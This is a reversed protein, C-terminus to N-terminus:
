GQYNHTAIVSEKGNYTGIIQVDDGPTCSTLTHSDGAAPNGLEQNSDFDGNTENYTCSGENIELIDAQQVSNVSITVESEGADQEIDIGAQATPTTNQGVDLVFAAIVTALVVTVAVMLIVAIVPSLATDEDGFSHITSSM